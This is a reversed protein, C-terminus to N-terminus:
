LRGKEGGGGSSRDGGDREGRESLNRAASVAFCVHHSLAVVESKEDLVIVELDYRGQQILKAQVRLFLWRVGQGLSKKVELNLLLTPYWFRAAPSKESMDTSSSRSSQSSSNSSESSNSSPDPPTYVDPILFTELVQPFMDVVFGLSEDTWVERKGDDNVTNLAFWQDSGGKGLAGRGRLPFFWRCRKSAKRFDSFPLLPVEAWNDDGKGSELAEFGGLLRPPPPTLSYNTSFSPGSQTSFNTFTLYGVVLDGRTRSVSPQTLTLHFTSTTAGTKTDSITILASGTSTRRLFSLHLSLLNPQQLTPHTSKLHLAAARHLTATVYGGHPVSGICWQADFNASYTHSSLQTPRTASEFNPIM